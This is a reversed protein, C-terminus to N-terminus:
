SWVAGDEEDRRQQEPIQREFAAIEEEAWTPM